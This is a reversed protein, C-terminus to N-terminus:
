DRRATGPMHKDQLDDQRHGLLYLVADLGLTSISQRAQRQVLPKARYAIGQGAVGLMKLDNAGDGVAVTQELSLGEREAIDQLLMAKREADVIPERVEGTVRGNVVVLENAHIEDFGLKNQLYRAFYSFGGSLIVTYYGLRKLHRMLREVGDMLPLNDAIELLVEEDLGELKAMRERFSQKFDLEGRMARETVAAVEEFVGNRRALEDIVEAKILTSDMDFCVLRRQNRWISDEQVALDVGLLAALALAKERLSEIDVNDGQLRFEICAGHPPLGGEPLARGALWDRQEVSLGQDAILEDVETIVDASLRPALLTLILTKQTM